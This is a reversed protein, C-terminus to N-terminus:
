YEKMIVETEERATKENIYERRLIELNRELENIIESRSNIESKHMDLKM